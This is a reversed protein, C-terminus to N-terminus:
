SDSEEFKGGAAKIKESASKSAVIGKLIFAKDVAGDGLIKVPQRTTAIMGSSKLTEPTIEGGELKNLLELSIVQHRTGHINKFGRKPLRQSLPFGGGEFWPQISGGSRSKQGKEGRGSTKGLGSGPGRGVRKRSKKAGKPPALNSLELM